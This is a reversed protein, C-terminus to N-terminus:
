IKFGRIIEKLRDAMNALNESTAAIEEMSASQEETAASVTQTQEATGKTVTEVQEVSAAIQKSGSSLQEVANLIERVQNSVENVLTVIERFAEGAYGVIETGAKVEKNGEDMASVAQNTEAQITGILEAIQKAADQSQEALKRVEEAVVSFGRGQEGARAAEIAANLALLNTQGAIGSITDVIQGIENSREGLKLVIKSSTHVAKDISNMQSISTEVISLGDDAAKATRNSSDSVTNIKAAIQQMHTDMQQVTSRTHNVSDLQQHAGNAVETVVEAVQTAAQASQEASATLEQSLDAVQEATNKISLVMDHLRKVMNGFERTLEGIEDNTTVLEAFNLNGSKMDETIKHIPNVINRSLVLGFITGLVIMLVSTTLVIFKIRSSYDDAKSRNDAAEEEQIKILENFSTDIDKRLKRGEGFSLEQAEKIKGQQYLEMVKFNINTFKTHTTDLHTLTEKEKPLGMLPKLKEINQKIKDSKQQIESKFEASGTLLFGREDNAQGTFYYQVERLTIVAADSENIIAEDNTRVQNLGYLSIFTVILIFASIIAYGSVIKTKVKVPLVGKM